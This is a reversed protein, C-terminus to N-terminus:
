GEGNGPNGLTERGSLLTEGGEGDEEGKMYKVITEKERHVVKAFKMSDLTQLIREMTLKDVDPYFMRMLEEFTMEKRVGIESMVRAMVDAIASKGV